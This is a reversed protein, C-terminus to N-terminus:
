KLPRKEDTLELIYDASINYFVALKKVMEVNVKVKGTEYRSYHQQEMGLYEALEKQSIKREERIEKIRDMNDRAKRFIIKFFYQCVDNKINNHLWM